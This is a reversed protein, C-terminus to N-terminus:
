NGIEFTSKTLSDIAKPILANVKLTPFNIGVFHLLFNNKPRDNVVVKKYPDISSIILSRKCYSRLHSFVCDDLLAERLINPTSTAM